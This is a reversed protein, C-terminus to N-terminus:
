NRINYLLSWFTRFGLIGLFLAPCCSVVAFCLALVRIRQAGLQASLANNRANGSALGAGWLPESPLVLGHAEIDASRSKLRFVSRANAWVRGGSAVPNGRGWGEGSTWSSAEGRCAQALAQYWAESSFVRGEKPLGGPQLDVVSAGARRTIDKPNTAGGCGEWLATQDQCRVGGSGSWRFVSSARPRGAQGECSM